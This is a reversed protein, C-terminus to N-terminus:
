NPNSVKLIEYTSKKVINKFSTICMFDHFIIVKLPLYNGDCKTSIVFVLM